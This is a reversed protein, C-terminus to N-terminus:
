ATRRRARWWCAAALLLLLVGAVRHLPAPTATQPLALPQPAVPTPAAAEATAAPAADSLMVKAATFRVRHQQRMAEREAPALPQGFVKDWNWGAPLDLPVNRTDLPQHQPRAPTVDIAVLSTLRSVLGHDLATQLVGKDVAEAPMGILRAAELAAIKERAWLRALGQGAAAGALAVETQWPQGGARGAVGIRSVGQPLKLALAVPEGAYLDLLPWPYAEAPKAGDVTVKLDTLVPRKLKALLRRMEDAVEGVDGIHTFTGRGARAAGRMFHSNPASGIGVTFLRSDGRRQEVMEFLQQENGVAGDTIFVVQRLRDTRQQRPLALQLAKSMETGGDANLRDIFDEARALSARSVDVADPYLPMAQDNFAIINFRDGPALDALALRLAAKAQAISTGSMSGSVDTIFIAERPLAADPQPLVPPAILVLAFRGQATDDLLTTASPNNDDGLRWHLVFDRNALTAGEVLAIGTRAPDTTDISVPHYPSEIGAVPLGAALTVRISVKNRPASGPRPVPPTIRSADPVQNTNAALGTGTAGVTQLGTGPIYRPAVVMPFRLAFRGDDPVLQEQYRIEVTVTENPGINAVQNTFLNPREQEVLSARRGERAAQEYAARAAQREAIRGEIFREGIQLRLTDVAARDPLPFVYVGEVWQDSPNFFRQRVTTRAVVGSVAIEVDTAVTPAPLLGAPDDTRLLLTGTEAEGPRMLTGTAARAQTALILLLAACVAAALHRARLDRLSTFM